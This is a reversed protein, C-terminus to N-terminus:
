SRARFRALGALTSILADEVTAADRRFFEGDLPPGSIMATYELSEREGDLKILVILGQRRLHEL